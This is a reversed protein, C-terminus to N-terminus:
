ATGASVWINRKLNMWGERGGEMWAPLCAHRYMRYARTCISASRNKPLRADHEQMYMHEVLGQKCAKFYRSVNVWSERRM